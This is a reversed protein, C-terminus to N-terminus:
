KFRLINLTGAFKPSHPVLLSNLILCSKFTIAWSNTVTLWCGRCRQSLRYAEVTVAHRPDKYLTIHDQRRYTVMCLTINSSMNHYDVGHTLSAARELSVKLQHNTIFIFFAKATALSVAYSRTKQWSVSPISHLPTSDALFRTLTTRGRLVMFEGWPARLYRERLLSGRTARVPCCGHGRGSHFIRDVLILQQKFVLLSRFKKHSSLLTSEIRMRYTSGRWWNRSTALHWEQSIKNKCVKAVVAYSDLENNLSM